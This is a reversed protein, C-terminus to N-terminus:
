RLVTVRDAIEGIEDMRHSIFITAMGATSRRKIAAFLRDRTAVDLASTAEDLILVKPERLLARAITCAQRQSLPLSGAPADLEPVQDLLEAFVEAARARKVDAPRGRRFVGDTGLWANELVSRSGVVLVEQFVTSIGARMADAPDRFQVGGAGAIEVTGADPRYVGTLIKVLTSKGSGNEGMVAHVEGADITVTCARLAVTPGFAKALGTVRLAM